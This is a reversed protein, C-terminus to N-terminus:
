RPTAYQGGASRVFALRSKFGLRRLARGAVEAATSAAIGLESAIVKYAAGRALLELARQECVDLGGSHPNSPHPEVKVAGAEDRRLLLMRKGDTDVSELLTWGGAFLEGWVKEADADPARGCREADYARAAAKFLERGDVGLTQASGNLIRGTGDGVIDERSPPRHRLNLFGAQLHRRMQRVIPECPSRTHQARLPIAAVTVYRGDHAMLGMADELGVAGYSDRFEPLQWMRHLGGFQGSMLGVSLPRFARKLVEPRWEVAMMAPLASEAAGFASVAAPLTAHEGASVLVGERPAVVPGLTSAVGHVWSDIPAACDYCRDLFRAREGKADM